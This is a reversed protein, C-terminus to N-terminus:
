QRLEGIVPAFVGGVLHEHNRHHHHYQCAHHKYRKGATCKNPFGQKAIIKGLIGRCNNRGSTSDIHTWSKWRWDPTISAPLGTLWRRLTRWRKLRCWGIVWAWGRLGTRSRGWASCQRHLNRVVRRKHDIISALIDTNRGALRPDVYPQDYAVTGLSTSIHHTWLLSIRITISREGPRHRGRAESM